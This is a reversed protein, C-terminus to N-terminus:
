EVLSIHREPWWKDNKEGKIYYNINQGDDISCMSVIGREGTAKIYVVDDIDFAFEVTRKGM